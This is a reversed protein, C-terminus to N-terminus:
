AHHYLKHIFGSAGSGKPIPRLLMDSAPLARHQGGNGQSAQNKNVIVKIAQSYARNHTRYRILVFDTPCLQSIKNISRCRRYTDYGRNGRPRRRNGAEHFPFIPHLEKHLGNRIIEIGKQGDTHQNKQNQKVHIKARHLKMLFISYLPIIKKSCRLTGIPFSGLFLSSFSM